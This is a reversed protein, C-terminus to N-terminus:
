ETKKRTSARLFTYPEGKEVVGSDLLAQQFDKVVITKMGRPANDKIISEIKGFPVEALTDWEEQTIHQLAIKRFGPKNVVARDSRQQITYNDPMECEGRLLRDTTQRKFADAWVSVVSALKMCIASDRTNMIASPTISAPIDLPSFKHGVRCAFKCVEPCRGINACFLCTPVNPTASRFDGDKRAQKAREVVAMVRLYLAPVDERKFVHSTIFNIHPQNFVVRIEKLAPIDRFMGLAYAIGQLNNSAAEVEWQGFKWDFLEAKTRTYDILVRDAYGGTTSTIHVKSVAGSKPDQIPCDEFVLSDVPLYPEIREEVPPTSAEAYAMAEEPAITQSNATTRDFVLRVERAREEEMIKKRREVYDLCEAAAIAEEDSLRHDDEGSETMGHQLTGAIAKLSATQRSLYCPCSELNQLTSPSYAHHGREQNPIPNETM